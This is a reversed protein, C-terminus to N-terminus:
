RFLDVYEGLERDFVAILNEYDSAKMEEIIKDTEEKTKGIQPLAKSAYGLLYFANGQPGTLDIEVKAPRTMKEIQKIAM